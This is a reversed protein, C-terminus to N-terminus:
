RSSQLVLNKYKQTKTDLTKTDKTKTKRNLNQFRHQKLLSLLM